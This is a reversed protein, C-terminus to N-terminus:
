KNEKVAHARRVSASRTAVENWRWRELKDRSPYYWKMLEATRVPEGDAYIFAKRIM